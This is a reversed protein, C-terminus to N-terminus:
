ANAKDCLRGYLCRKLLFVLFLTPFRIIVVETGPTRGRAMGVSLGYLRSQSTAVAPVALIEIFVVIITKISVISNNDFLYCFVNCAQPSARTFRNTNKDYPLSPWLGGVQRGSVHAGRPRIEGLIGLSSSACRRRFQFGAFAWDRITQGKFLFINKQKKNSFVVQILVVTCCQLLVPGSASKSNIVILRTEVSVRFEGQQNMNNDLRTTLFLSYVWVCWSCTTRPFFCKIDNHM